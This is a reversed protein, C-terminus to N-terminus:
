ETTETVATEAANTETETLTEVTPPNTETAQTETTTDKPGCAVFCTALAAILIFAFLRKM